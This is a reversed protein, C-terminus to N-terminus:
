AVNGIEVFRDCSLLMGDTKGWIVVRALRFTEAVESVGELTAKLEETVCSIERFRDRSLLPGDMEGWITVSAFRFNETVKSVRETSSKAGM